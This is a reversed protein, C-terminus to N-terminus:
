PMSVPVSILHTPYTVCMRRDMDYEAICTSSVMMFSRVLIASRISVKSGIDSSLVQRNIRVHLCAEGRLGAVRARTVLMTCLASLRGPCRGNTINDMACESNSISM